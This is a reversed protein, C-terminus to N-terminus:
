MENRLKNRIDEIRGIYDYFVSCECEEAREDLVNIYDSVVGVLDFLEEKTLKITKM